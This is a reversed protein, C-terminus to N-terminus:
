IRDGGKEESLPNGAERINVPITITFTSGQGEISKVSIDGHLVETALRRTLYLGLGTGATKVRLRSDLREFPRCLRTMDKEAIGIGTDTVSVSVQADTVRSAVTITGSETFKAANSLFNILCQMLRKRDTYLNIDPSVDVELTLGKYKLQPEITTIAEDVMERLTFSEPYAEIRGAEIKSIDIVDNILSLLHKASFYARNLNDKQEDNLEGSLGQLTMGTFGIISNLPTRLEHSMSAIFMSKLRDLEMLKKNATSLEATRAEVMEELHARYQKLEEEAQKRETINELQSILYLPSGAVDKALSVALLAWVIRGEKHFYRKEIKYTEIEGALLRRLYKLNSDLDDPYTLDQFTKTLLEEESYGLLSCVGANVKLFKGEPSVLAMGIAANQFASKFRAESQLLAYEALKRDTIDMEIGDWLIRGDALRRPTSCVRMWRVQGDTRRLPVEVDYVSLDKASREEAAAIILRDEDMILRYLTSSDRLVEDASVGNLRESAASVYLFRKSGDLERVVQYIMGNPLNDGLSRLRAQGELASQGASISETHSAALLMGTVAAFGLYVQALLLREQLSQGGWIIPGTNVATSSVVIVTLLFLATMIGRQGLRLAPWSLLAILMYPYLHISQHNPGVRFLLWAATCWVVIFAVAEVMRIWRIGHLSEFPKAWTVILPTILLIGLGDAIWWSLWFHWFTATATLAATGAGIFSTAANVVTAAAILAFVEKVRTFKVDDGCWRVILWACAASELVNSTMFGISLILPRGFLLDASVGAAFLAALIAPWLRRPSLLLAALGIGGALWVVVLVKEADPFMFSIYHAIFYALAILALVPFDHDISRHVSSLQGDNGDNSM